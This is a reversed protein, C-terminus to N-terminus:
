MVGCARIVLVFFSDNLYLRYSFICTLYGAVLYLLQVQLKRCPTEVFNNSTQNFFPMSDMYIASAHGIDIEKWDHFLTVM